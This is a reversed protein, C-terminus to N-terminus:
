IVVLTLISEFSFDNNVAKKFKELEIQLSSKRISINESKPYEYTIDVADDIRHKKNSNM